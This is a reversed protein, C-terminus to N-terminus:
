VGKKKNRKIVKTKSKPFVEEPRSTDRFKKELEHVKAIQQKSEDEEEETYDEYETCGDELEIKHVRKLHVISTEGKLVEMMEDLSWDFKHYGEIFEKFFAEIVGSLSIYDPVIAKLDEVIKEEITINLRIKGM